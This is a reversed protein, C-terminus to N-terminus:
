RVHAAGSDAKAPPATGAGPAGTAPTTAAMTPQGLMGITASFSYDVPELSSPAVGQGLAGSSSPASGANRQLSKLNVGFDPNTEFSKVFTILAEQSSATGTLDFEKSVVKGNYLGQLKLNTQANSDDSRMVLGSIAVGGTTPIANVFRALDSSWYTKSGALARAVDTVKLLDNRQRTLADFEAKAPTLASIEGNAADIQGQLGSLQSQLVLSPVLMILLTVPVMIYAATRWGNAGSQRQYEPPLLNIDIM